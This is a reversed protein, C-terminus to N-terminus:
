QMLQLTHLSVTDVQLIKGTLTSYSGKTCNNYPTSM